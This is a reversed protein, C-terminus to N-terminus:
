RSSSGPSVSSPRRKKSHDVGKFPDEVPMGRMKEVIGVAACYGCFPEYELLADQPIAIAGHDQNYLARALWTRKHGPQEQFVVHLGFGAQILSSIHHLREEAIQKQLKSIQDNLANKQTM